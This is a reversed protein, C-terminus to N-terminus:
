TKKSRSRKPQAPDYVLGIYRYRNKQKHAYRHKKQFDNQKRISNVLEKYIPPVKDNKLRFPVKALYFRDKKANQLSARKFAKLANKYTASAKMKTGEKNNTGRYLKNFYRGTKNTEAHRYYSTMEKPKPFKARSRVNRNVSSVALTLAPDNRVQMLVNLGASRIEPPIYSSATSYPTTSSRKSARNM